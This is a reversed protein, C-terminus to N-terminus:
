KPEKTSRIYGGCEAVIERLEAANWSCAVQEWCVWLIRRELVFPVYWGPSIRYERTKGMM